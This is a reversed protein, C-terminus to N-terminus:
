APSVAASASPAPSVGPTPSPSPSAAPVPSPVPSPSVSPSPLPVPSSSPTPTPTPLPKILNEWAHLNGATGGIEDLLTQCRWWWMGLDPPAFPKDATGPFVLYTVKLSSVPRNEATARGNIEKALRLSAEGIKTSPGVDGVVAPYLTDKWIVVCFDGVRPSFPHGSQAMLSGPLVVYPDTAAVLFSRTKLETIDLRTDHISKRLQEKRRADTAAGLDAELQKLKAERPALFPNPLTTKKPWKYNTFPQFTASSGDVDAVRDSDSGDSDVDMDSQILLVRRGTDPHQLELVTECDFFDHRSPLQDLRALNARVNALKLGYLKEYFPSVRGSATMPALGPLIKPLAENLTALEALSTNPKPVRITLRLDLAYSAGTGREISATAGPETILSTHLEIGNFLRGTDMRKSPVYIPTPSPEPTASPLATASAGPGPPPSSSSAPHEVHVPRSCGTFLALLLALSACVHRQM